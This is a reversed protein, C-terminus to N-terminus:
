THRLRKEPSEFHERRHCNACLLECRQIEARIERRSRADSVLSAVTARKAGTHHFVLCGPATEDCRNCGDSAQKYEYLWRQRGSAPVASHEKRHCNTCLVECNAIESRLEDKGYGHTVMENIAMRKTEPDTHHFDLVAPDDIGCQVCGTTQKYENLWQRHRARRDLTSNANRETHRYHWRQDVSLESWATGEPLEVDDPKPQVRSGSSRHTELGARRKAENWGGIVRIITASAPTLGLDEYAAKTPSEGLQEAAERLADLCEQETTRV